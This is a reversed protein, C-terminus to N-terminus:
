LCELPMMVALRQGSLNFFIIFSVVPAPIWGAGNARSAIQHWLLGACYPQLSWDHMKTLTVSTQPVASIGLCTIMYLWFAGCSGALLTNNPSTLSLILGAETSIKGLLQEVGSGPLCEGRGDRGLGSLCVWALGEIFEIQVVKWLQVQMLTM